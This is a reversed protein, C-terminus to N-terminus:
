LYDACTIVRIVTSMTDEGYLRCVDAYAAEDGAGSAKRLTYLYIRKNYPMYYIRMEDLGGTWNNGLTGDTQIQPFVIELSCMSSSSPCFVLWRGVNTICGHIGDESVCPVEIPSQVADTGTFWVSGEQPMGNELVYADIAKIYANIQTTVETWRAKRVAKQYQPLAVAALIGIILVVVLLEILTFGRSIIERGQPPLVAMLRPLLPLISSGKTAGRKTALAVGPCFGEPALPQEGCPPCIVDDINKM